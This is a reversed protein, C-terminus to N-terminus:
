QPRDVPVWGSATWEQVIWDIRTLKQAHEFCEAVTGRFIIENRVFLAAEILVTTPRQLESIPIATSVKYVLDNQYTWVCLCGSIHEYGQKSVIYQHGLYSIADGQKLDYPKAITM